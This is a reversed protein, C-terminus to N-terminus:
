RGRYIALQRYARIASEGTLSEGVSEAAGRLGDLVRRMETEYRAAEAIRAKGEAAIRKMEDAHVKQAAEDRANITRADSERQAAEVRELEIIKADSEARAAAIQRDLYVLTARDRTERKKDELDEVAAIETADIRDRGEPRTAAEADRAARRAADRTRDVDEASKKDADAKDKAKVADKAAKETRRLSGATKQLGDIEERLSAPTDGRVLNSAFGISDEEMAALKAALAGIQKDLAGVSGRVDTFDLSLRFKDAKQSGSELASVVTERITNGLKYFIAAVGAVATLKGVLGTIAGIGVSAAKNIGVTAESFSTGVATGAASMQGAAAKVNAEAQKLGAQAPNPDARIETTLSGAILDAM